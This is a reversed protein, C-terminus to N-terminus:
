RHLKLYECSQTYLRLSLNKQVDIARTIMPSITRKKTSKIRCGPEDRFSTGTMLITMM